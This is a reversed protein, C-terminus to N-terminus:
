LIGQLNLVFGQLVDEGLLQQPNQQVEKLQGSGEASGL